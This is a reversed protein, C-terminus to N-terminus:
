ETLALHAKALEQFDRSVEDGIGYFRYQSTLPPLDGVTKQNSVKLGAPVFVASTISVNMILCDPEVVVAPGVRAWFVLTKMGIYASDEVRAPGHIQAQPCISVRRGLYVSYKSGAVDVLRKNDVAGNRRTPLDRIVVGEQINSGEGIHIPEENDGRIIAGAAIFVNSGVIVNGEVIASPHVFATNDIRPEFISPSWSTSPSSTSIPEPAPVEIRRVQVQPPEYSPAPPPEYSPAPPTYTEVPKSVPETVPAEPAPSPTSPSSTVASGLHSKSQVDGLTLVGRKSAGLSVPGSQSFLGAASGHKPPEPPRGIIKHTVETIKDRSDTMVIGAELEGTSNFIM